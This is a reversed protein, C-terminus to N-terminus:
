SRTLTVDSIASRTNIVVGYWGSITPTYTLTESVGPGGGIGSALAAIRRQVFTGPSSPDSGMLFLDVDQGSNQPAATLAVPVGAVLYTDRVAVFDNPLNVTMPSGANLVAGGGLAFEVNYEGFGNFLNVGAYYDGFPRRNSDIAVFDTATGGLVSNGLFASEARDDYLTLDDDTGSNPLLAVVSWYPTSTNFSFNHPTPKPRSLRTMDTLPERFQYDITNQYLTARAGTDAVNYGDRTRDDWFSAFSNDVHHIFTFWIGGIFESSRDWLGENTIDAIDLMAAVVRGETIDGQGWATDWNPDELNLSEGTPWRFTATRYVSLAFWNAFAEVWACGTNTALDMRHPNCGPNPPFAENYVDDMVAHGIEHAVVLPGNPDDAALYVINTTQNYETNHVSDRNWDIRVQRCTTDKQDYCWSPAVKPVFLYTDNAADFAHVARNDAPNSPSKWGFNVTGVPNFIVNTNWQFVDTGNQVRFQLNEAVFALSLAKTVSSDFCLNFNGNFDTLGVSVTGHAVDRVQVQFNMSNHRVGAQDYYGWNGTVHSDCALATGGVKNTVPPLGPNGAASLSKPDQWAPRAAIGKPETTLTAVSLDGTTTVSRFQSPKGQDGVTLFVDDKGADVNSGNPSTARVQIQGYGPAVAKVVGTFTAPQGAVLQVKRQATAINGSREPQVSTAHGATFGTPAQAWALQTPLEVTIDSPALKVGTSVTYTLTATEGVSPVRDLTAKVGICSVFEDNGSKSGSHEACARGNPVVQPTPPGTKGGPVPDATAPAGTSLVALLGVTFTIFAVRFRNRRM